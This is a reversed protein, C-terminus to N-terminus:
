PTLGASAEPVEMVIGQRAELAFSPILKLIQQENMTPIPDNVVLTDGRMMFNEVQTDSLRDDGWAEVFSLFGPQEKELLIHDGQSLGEWDPCMAQRVANLLSKRKKDFPALRETISVWMAEGDTPNCVFAMDFIKPAHPSSSATPFVGVEGEKDVGLVYGIWGDDPKSLRVVLDADYPHQYVWALEGNGVYGLRAETRRPIRDLIEALESSIPKMATVNFVGVRRSFM